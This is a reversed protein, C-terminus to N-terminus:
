GSAAGIHLLSVGTRPCMAGRGGITGVPLVFVGSGSARPHMVGVGALLLADHLVDVVLQRTSVFVVLVGTASVTLLSLGARHHMALLSVGFHGAPPCVAVSLFLADHVIDLGLEGTAVIIALLGAVGIFLLSVGVSCCMAGKGGTVGIPLLSVGVRPCIAGALLLAGHIVDLLLERTAMTVVLLSTAGVPALFVGFHSSHPHMAGCGCVVCITLLSVGSHGACHYVVGVLRLTDHLVELLLEGVAMVVVLLSSAGVPVVGARPRMVGRGGVAGIPLVSVSSHSVCLRVACAACALLLADHLVGLLLEGTAVIVALLGTVGKPLLSVGVRRCMAGRGSAAGVPLVFVGSHGILSCLAGTADVLLLIGHLVDLLLEGTTVTVVLLGSAGVPLMSVSSHGARLRM